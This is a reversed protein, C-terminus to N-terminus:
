SRVCAINGLLISLTEPITPRETESATATERTSDSLEHQVSDPWLVADDINEFWRLVKDNIVSCPPPVDIEGLNQDLNQSPLQMLPQLEHLM